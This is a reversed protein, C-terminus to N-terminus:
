LFCTHEGSTKRSPAAFGARTQSHFPSSHSVDLSTEPLVNKSDNIIVHALNERACSCVWLSESQKNQCAVELHTQPSWMSVFHPFRTSFLGTSSPNWLGANIEPKHLNARPRLSCILFSLPHRASAPFLSSSSPPLFTLHSTILM